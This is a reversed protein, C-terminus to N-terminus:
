ALAGLKFYYVTTQQDYHGATDVYSIGENLQM